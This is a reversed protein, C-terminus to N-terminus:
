ISRFPYGQILVLCTTSSVHQVIKGAALTMTTRVRNVVVRKTPTFTYRATWEARGRVAVCQGSTYSRM